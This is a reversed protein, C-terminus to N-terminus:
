EVTEPINRLPSGPSSCNRLSDRGCMLYTLPLRERTAAPLELPLWPVRLTYIIPLGPCRVGRAESLVSEHSVCCRGPLLMVIGDPSDRAVSLIASATSLWSMGPETSIFRHKPKVFWLAPEWLSRYRDQATVMVQSAPAISIARQLADQFPTRQGNLQCYQVPAARGGQSQPFPSDSGHDDAVVVAWVTKLARSPHTNM